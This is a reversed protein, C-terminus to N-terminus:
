PLEVEEVGDMNGDGGDLLGSMMLVESFSLELVELEPEKYRTKM